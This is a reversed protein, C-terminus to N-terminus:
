PSPKRSPAPKEPEDFDHATQEINDDYRRVLEILYENPNFLGLEQAYSGEGMISCKIIKDKRIIAAALRHNGDEIMHSVYCNMSPVGVDIDIPNDFGNKVFYAIKQIHKQRAEDVDFAGKLDMMADLALPTETLQEQNNKLCDLVEQHTIPSKLEMWCGFPDALKKVRSLPLEHYSAEELEDLTMDQPQKNM